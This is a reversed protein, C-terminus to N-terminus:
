TQKEKEDQQNDAGDQARDDTEDQDDAREPETQGDPEARGDESVANRANRWAIAEARGHAKQHYYGLSFVAQQPMTMTQPWEQIRDCVAEIDRQLRAHAGPNTRRLTTLHSQATKLLIGFATAPAASAPGYFRTVSGVRRSRTAARHVQEILALLRGCQYAASPHETELQVMYDERPPEDGAEEDQSLLALKILAARNRVIATETRNRRVAQFLTELPVATGTLAARFLRQGTAEPTDRSVRAISTALHFLSLPRPHEGTPDEDRPDAIRQRRFWKTLASHADGVTTEIWDNVVARGGSGTMALAYLAEHPRSPATQRLGNVAEEQPNQLLEDLQFEMSDTWFLFTTNNVRLHTNEAYMLANVARTFAEGCRQCTPANGSARLGYSEFAESNASTMSTGSSQGGWLGKVKAQLRELVPGQQGCVLCQDRTDWRPTNHRAWFRQVAPLGIPRQRSGDPMVVEFTAKLGHDWDGGLDLRSTGGERYFMRVAAVSPERTADWCRELLELYAQHSQTAREKRGPNRPIGFTYEGQDALLLPRVGTTRQIVPAALDLGRKGRTTSEDVTLVPQRSIPRGRHDIVIIHAVPTMEYLPPLQEHRDAYEKLKSLM